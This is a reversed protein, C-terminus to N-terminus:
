GLAAQPGQSQPGQARAAREEEEEVRQFGVPRVARLVVRVRRGEGRVDARVAVRDGVEALVGLRPVERAPEQQVAGEAVGEHARTVEGAVVLVELADLHMEDTPAVLVHADGAAAELQKIRSAIAGAINGPNM